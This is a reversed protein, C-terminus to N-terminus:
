GAKIIPLMRNLEPPNKEHAIWIDVSPELFLFAHEQHRYGRGSVKARRGNIYFAIVIHSEERHLNEIAWHGAATLKIHGHLSAPTGPRDIVHWIDSKKRLHLLAIDIDSSAMRAVLTMVSVNALRAIYQLRKLPGRTGHLEEILNDPMLLTAAINDALTEEDTLLNTQGRMQLLDVVSRMRLMVHALEHAFLFRWKTELQKYNLYIIPDSPGFDTYGHRFNTPLIGGVRLDRAIQYLDVPPERVGGLAISVIESEIREQSAM